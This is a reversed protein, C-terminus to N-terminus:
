KGMAGIYGHSYNGQPDVVPLQVVEFDTKSSSLQLACIDLVTTKLLTLICDTTDKKHSRNHDIVLQLM